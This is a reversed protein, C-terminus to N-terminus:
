ITCFLTVLFPVSFDVMFGHAISIMVYEKGCVNTIVPLTSDMTTAGGSSIPALPGFYKVMLPALLLTFVERIINSLLAITGLEAGKYQTILVTSLSYYGFGSGVAATDSLSSGIIPAAVAVGALTGLVTGIAPLAIRLKYRKITQLVSDDIGISIGVFLLLTYLVYKTPTAFDVEAFDGLYGIFCGVAFFIIIVISGKM